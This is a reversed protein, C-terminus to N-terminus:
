RAYPLPRLGLGDLFYGLGDNVGPRNDIGHSDGIFHLVSRGRNGYVMTTRTADM